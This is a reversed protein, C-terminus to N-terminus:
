QEGPGKGSPSPAAEPPTEPAASAAGAAASAARPPEALPTDPTPDILGLAAAEEANNQDQVFDLFEMPDNAFRRRIKSPLAEFMQQGKTVLDMADKFEVSTAYGYQSAFKNVHEIGGTKHFQAVINNIDCERKFEQKTRAEKKDFSIAYERKSM